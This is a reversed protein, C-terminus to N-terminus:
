VVEARGCINPMTNMEDDKGVVKARFNLQNLVIWTPDFLHAKVKRRVRSKVVGCVIDPVWINGDSDTEETRFSCSM